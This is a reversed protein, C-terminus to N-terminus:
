YDIGIKVGLTLIPNVEDAHSIRIVNANKEDPIVNDEAGTRVGAGVFWDFSFDNEAPNSVKWGLLVLGDLYSQKDRLKGGEYQNDSNLYVGKVDKRYTTCDVEPAVYLGEGANHRPYYRVNWKACIGSLHDVNPDKGGLTKGKLIIDKLYDTFTVGLGVETSWASSLKGELYVPVEGRFLILPNCKLSWKSTNEKQEPVSYRASLLPSAGFVNVRDMKLSDPASPSQQAYVGSRGTLLLLFLIFGSLFSRRM